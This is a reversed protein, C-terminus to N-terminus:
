FPLFECRVQMPKGDNIRGVKLTADYPRYYNIGNDLFTDVELDFDNGWYRVLYWTINQQLMVTHFTSLENTRVVADQFSAGFSRDIRVTLDSPTNGLPLSRCEVAPREMFQAEAIQIFAFTAIALFFLPTKSKLFPKM